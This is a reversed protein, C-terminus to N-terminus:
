RGVVEVIVKRDSRPGDLECFCINQWIGLKLAGKSVPVAKSCGFLASKVHASGHESGPSHAYTSSNPVMNSLSNLTDKEVLGDAEMILIAATAHPAYILCIGEKVGSSQVLAEVRETIDIVENKRSSPVGFEFM